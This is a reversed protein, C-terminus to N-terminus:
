LESAQNNHNVSIIITRVKMKLQNMREIIDSKM